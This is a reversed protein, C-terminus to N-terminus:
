IIYKKGVKIKSSQPIRWQEGYRNRLNQEYQRPLYLTGMNWTYKTLPFCNTWTINSWTDNVKDKFDSLYFDIQAHSSTGHTNLFHSQNENLIFGHHSLIQKLVTANQKDMIIDIDDDNEICSHNRVLGLLTGYGIFWNKIKYHQLLLAISLLTFNLKGASQPQGTM